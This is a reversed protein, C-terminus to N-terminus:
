WVNGVEGASDTRPLWGGCIGGLGIKLTHLAPCGALASVDTLGGCHSMDFTRLAACGALASVDTLGDCRFVHEKKVKVVDHPPGTKLEM